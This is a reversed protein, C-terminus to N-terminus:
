RHYRLIQDNVPKGSLRQKREDMLPDVKNIQVDSCFLQGPDKFRALICQHQSETVDEGPPTLKSMLEANPLQNLTRSCFDSLREYEKGRYVFVKNQLFAPFGRGYFAVRFYEPEPRIQKMISDYFQSMRKLLSSLQIYDFIEEEYQTVLEKCVTLACEWM